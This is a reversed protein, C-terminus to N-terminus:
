WAGSMGTPVFSQRGDFGAGSTSPGSAANAQYSTTSSAIQRGDLYHKHIQATKGSSPPPGQWASRISTGIQSGEKTVWDLPALAYAGVSKAKQVFWDLINSLWSKVGDWVAMLKPKITGWHTYIEYSAAIVIGIGAIALGVPGTGFFLLGFLRLSKGIMTLGYVLPGSFAMAGMLGVLGKVILDFRVPHRRITMDFYRLADALKLLAPIVIPLLAHGAENELNEWAKGLAIEAGQPSSRALKILQDVNLANKSIAMNKEIKAQQLYMLSFLNAGTRNGFISGMENLVDNESTKGHATMAPILIDKMWHYPDSTFEDMGKLAGPLIRKIQGIKDYEVMHANLIGLAMMEKAARVTSRGQALNNYASMMGTGIRMGSNEQILPEMTYYFVKDDLLRGSVGATKIFQLYDSPKVMGGTGSIVQQMMNAQAMFAAASKFGGKMEIIKEMSQLQRDDMAMGHEGFVAQNAFKMQAIAPALQRAMGYDGLATHLDRVTGILDTASAGMVNAGRAFKDADRNVVDGLNLAKFQNLVQEYRKAAEYPADLFKLGKFGFGQIEKLTNKLRNAAADTRGFDGQLLRLGQTVQNTLAITVGVKYAEFM